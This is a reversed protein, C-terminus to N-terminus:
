VDGVLPGDEILCVQRLRLFTGQTWNWLQDGPNGLIHVKDGRQMSNEVNRTFDHKIERANPPLHDLQVIALDNGVNETRGSRVTLMFAGGILGNGIRLISGKM